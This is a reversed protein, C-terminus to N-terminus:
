EIKKKATKKEIKWKIRKSKGRMTKTIRNRETWKSQEFRSQELLNESGMSSVYIVYFKVKCNKKQEARKPMFERLERNATWIRVPFNWKLILFIRAYKWM